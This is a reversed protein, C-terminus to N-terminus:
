AAAPERASRAATLREYLRIYDHAMRRATFRAEFEYRCRGRDLRVLKKVSEVADDVDDVICGTVGDTLVEPVSGCRFALVPTGCALAEIM